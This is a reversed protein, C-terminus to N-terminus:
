NVDSYCLFLSWTRFVQVVKMVITQLNGLLIYLVSVAAHRRKAIRELVVRRLTLLPIVSFLYLLHLRLYVVNKKRLKL